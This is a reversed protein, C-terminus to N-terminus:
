DPMARSYPRQRPLLLLVLLSWHLVTNMYSLAVM